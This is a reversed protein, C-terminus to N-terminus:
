DRDMRRREDRDERLRDPDPEFGALFDAKLGPADGDLLVGVLTAVPGSIQNKGREYDHISAAPDKGKLGLLSAMEFGTLSRGLGWDHGLQHRAQILEAGTM